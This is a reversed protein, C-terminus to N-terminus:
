KRNNMFICLLYALNLITVVFRAKGLTILCSSNKAGYPLGPGMSGSKTKKACSKHSFPTKLKLHNLCHILRLYVMCVM